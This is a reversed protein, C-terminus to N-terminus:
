DNAPAIIVRRYPDDGESRTAIGAAGSLTDHIIKRDASSMPELVRAVGSSKVEDAMQNAFAGLAVRRRERYGGVDVRLRTDHDGLRRQAAVRALDQVAQLTTGRPGVLLGLEQGHVRVELDDGDELLEATGSLGFASVLETMFRVAEEGVQRADVLQEKRENDTTVRDDNTTTGSATTGSATTGSATAANAPRAKSRSANSAKAAAPKADSPKTNSLAASDEAATAAKPARPARPARQRPAPSQDTTATTDAKDAKESRKRDRRDVKQRAQTPRVRARVRAEGRVRGFLGQKPEELVEFDADEEHVGLQDLAREKAEEITKGITEVWEM